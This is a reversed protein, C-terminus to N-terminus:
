MRKANAKQCLLTGAEDLGKAARANIDAMKRLLKTGKLPLHFKFGLIQNSPTSISIPTAAVSERLGKLGM